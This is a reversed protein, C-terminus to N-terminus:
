NERQLGSLQKQVQSLREELFDAEANLLAKEDSKDEAATGSFGFRAWGPMGSVRAMTRFGRGRGFGYGFSGATPVTSICDPAAFRRCLGAGRGTMSGMGLPGRGDGGPM